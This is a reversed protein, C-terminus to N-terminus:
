KNQTLLVLYNAKIDSYSDYDGPCIFYDKVGYLNKLTISVGYTSVEPYMVTLDVNFIYEKGETTKVWVSYYGGDVMELACVGDTTFSAIKSASLTVCGAANKIESATSYTGAAYRIYTFTDAKTLKITYNDTTLVPANVDVEIKPLVNTEYADCNACDRREEGEAETTPEVTTYWAGFSHGKAPIIETYTDNCICSYVTIGDETCTPDTTVSTYSHVHSSATFLVPDSVVSNGSSDALVVYFRYKTGETLGKSAVSVKDGEIVSVNCAFDDKLSTMVLSSTAFSRTKDGNLEISLAFEDGNKQYLGEAETDLGAGYPSLTEGTLPSYTNFYVLDNEVDFQILRLFENGGYKIEGYEGQYDQLVAFGGNTMKYASVGDLHGNLVLKVNSYPDVIRTSINNAIIETDSSYTHTIVIVTYDSNNKVMNEAWSLDSETLRSVYALSLIMIKAGNVTNKYAMARTTSGTMSDPAFSVEWDGANEGLRSSPFYSQYYRKENPQKDYDIDHNGWSFTYPIGENEFIEYSKDVVKWNYEYNLNSRNALDGTNFTIVGNMDDFNDAIWQHQHYVLEPTFQSMYQTDSNWFMTFDYEGKEPIFSDLESIEEGMGRFIMLYIIRNDIYQTGSMEINMSLEGTGETSCLKIWAGQVFDYGYAHLQRDSTGKWFFSWGGKAAQEETLTIRIIQYPNTGDNVTIEDDLYSLMKYGLVKPDIGAPTKNSTSGTAIKTNTITLNINESVHFEANLKDMDEGSTETSLMGNDSSIVPKEPASTDATNVTIEVSSSEGEANATLTINMEGTGAVPVYVAFEGAKVKGLDFSNGNVQANLSADKTIVGCVLQKGSENVNRTAADANMIFAGNTEAKGVTVADGFYNSYRFSEWQETMRAGNIQVDYINGKFGGNLAGGLYSSYSGITTPINPDFFATSEIFVSEWRAVRGDIFIQVTFGDYAMTVLHPQGDSLTDIVYDKKRESANRWWLCGFYSHLEGSEKVGLLYANKGSPDDAAYKSIIGADTLSDATYSVVASVSIEMNDDGISSYVINGNGDLSIGKDGNNETAMITGNAKGQEKGTSDEYSDDGFHEVLSYTEAWVEDASNSADKGGFYVWVATASHAPLKSVNVWVNSMGKANYSETEFPLSEGKATYFAMKESPANELKILVPANTFELDTDNRIIISRRELATEDAWTIDNRGENAILISYNEVQAKQENSLKNYMDRASSYEADFILKEVKSVERDIGFGEIMSPVTDHMEYSAVSLRNEEVTVASFAPATGRGDSRAFKMIYEDLDNVSMQTGALSGLAGNMMYVAGSTDMTYDFCKGNVTETYIPQGTKDGDKLDYTHGMIHDHGQIVLDIGLEDLEGIFLNRLAKVDNDNASTGSTYPGKHMSLITWEKDTSAADEKLWEIQEDSICKESNESTDLVIIHAAGYDFSYYNNNVNFYNFFETDKEGKVPVIPMSLFTDTTNYLLEQWGEVGRTGDTFDGTHLMFDAHPVIKQAAELDFATKLAEDLTAAETDSVALFTFSDDANATTFTGVESTKSDGEVRYYYKTNATLGVAEAKYTNGESIATFILSENFSKDESVSVRMNKDALYHWTFGVSCGNDGTISATIMNISNDSYEITGLIPYREPYVSADNMKWETKFDWGITEYIDKHILEYSTRPIGNKKDTFSVANGNVTIEDCVVNTLVNQINFADRGYLMGVNQTAVSEDINVSGAYVANARYTVQNSYGCIMAANVVTSTISENPLYNIDAKVLCYEITSTASYAAIGGAMPGYSGTRPGFSLSGEFVCHSITANITNTRANMVAIGGAKPLNPAYVTANTVVCHSVLSGHANDGVIVAAGSNGGTSLATTSVSPSDFVINKVTGTNTRIFAVRYESGMNATVMDNITLNKITHGRGDLIGSFADIPTFDIGTLDMDATLAFAKGVVVGNQENLLDVINLLEDVTTILYPDEGTGTGALTLYVRESPHMLVPADNVMKWTAGFDWGLAQYTSQLKLADTTVATGTLTTTGAPANATDILNGYVPSLTGYYTNQSPCIGGTKLSTFQRDAEAALREIKGSAVVNGDISGGAGYGCIMGAHFPSTTESAAQLSVNAVYCNEITSSGSYGSIAGMMLGYSNGATRPGGILITDEVACNKVTAINVGTTNGSRSNMAAIAAAKPVKPANVTSNRVTVCSIVGDQCNEAVVIAAGSNGNASADMDTSIYAGDFTVDCVTGYNKHIFGIGYPTSGTTHHITLNRIAYGCGDLTGSFSNIMPFSDILSLDIDATLTFIKDGAVRSDGGNILEAMNVLEEADSILYPDEETGSGGFTLYARESPLRLAPVSDAMKWVTYFDWGLAEYTSQLVLQDATAATGALATANTTVANATDILNGRVPKLAGYYSNQSPCIGGLKLTNFKQDTEAAMREISGSVVVNGDIVGGAGYGCIYGAHFPSTTESAAKMILGSIYCNEITSTGQYGAIGGMMLGYANGEARPGGIITTNIVVCNRVTAINTVATNGARSNMSTIAAAKPVKPANVLSNKVTVCSIVGDQCNEGVVVAAGAVGSSTRDYLANITANDFTVDCVTGSNQDIFASRYYSSGTHEITLNSITYGKGDFTGTFKSIMPFNEVSSLDVNQTLAYYKGVYASDSANMREAAFILEDANGIKYPSEQTGNGSLVTVDAAFINIPLMTALIALLLFWSVIRKKM